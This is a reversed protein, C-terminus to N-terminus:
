KQEEVGPPLDTDMGLKNKLEFWSNRLQWFKSSEMGAIQQQLAQRAYQSRDLEGRTQWLLGQSDWYDKRTAELEQQTERLQQRTKELQSRLDQVELKLCASQVQTAMAAFPPGSTTEVAAQIASDRAATTTQLVSRPQDLLVDRYLELYRAAETTGAYHAEILRRGQRGYEALQLDQLCEGLTRALAQVDGVPVLRGHVRDQLVDLTGGAAFAIVATACAMAELLTNPLNDELSPLCFLDAASYIRRLEDDSRIEGLHVVPLDALDLSGIYGFCLLRLTQNEIREYFQPQQLLLRLAAIMESFGKRRETCNHAGFLIVQSHAELGLAAKAEAKAVPAFVATDLAYPIVEIRSHAFFTSARACDALWRSPAVVVFNKGDLFDIKDQLLMAPLQYPDDRLQPCNRCHERYGECGASFHCGGTFAWMDHLTWFVPKRHAEVLKRLTVPSQWRAVWHLHLIDACTIAAVSSLDVGPYPLTFITNSLDTRNHDVYYAQVRALNDLTELQESAELPVVARTSPDDSHRIHVHLTAEQGLQLLGRHLRYAARAAGGQLDWTSLSAVRLTEGAIIQPPPTAMDTEFTEQAAVM